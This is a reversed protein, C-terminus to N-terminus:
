LKVSEFKVEIFSSVCDEQLNEFDTLISNRATGKFKKSCLYFFHDCSNKMTLFPCASSNRVEMLNPKDPPVSSNKKSGYIQHMPQLM